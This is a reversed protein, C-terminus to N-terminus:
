ELEYYKRQKKKIFKNNMFLFTIPFINLIFGLFILVDCLNKIKEIENEHINEKLIPRKWNEDYKIMFDLYMKENINHKKIVKYPKEINKSLYISFSYTNNNEKLLYLCKDNECLNIDYNIEFNENLIFRSNSHYILDNSTANYILKNESLKKMEYNSSLFVMFFIMYLEVIVFYISIKKLTNTFIHNIYYIYGHINIYILLILFINISYYIMLGEFNHWKDSIIFLIFNSLIILLIFTKILTKM